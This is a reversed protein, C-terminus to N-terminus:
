TDDGQERKLIGMISAHLNLNGTKARNVMSRFYAGPKMVRNEIRLTGYDTLLLCIAANERGIAVCANGWNEQSIPLKSKLSYAAEIMDRWTLPYGPNIPIHAKFRDSAANLAQKLRINEIGTSTAPSTKEKKLAKENLQPKSLHSLTKSKSEQNGIVSPKSSNSKDFPPKNTNKYHADKEEDKCSSKSTLPIESSIKEAWSIQETLQQYLKKHQHLLDRLSELKMYTRISIAIEDYQTQIQPTGEEELESLMARIQARYWSVQRKTKMWARDHLQKEHLKNELKSRLFAL